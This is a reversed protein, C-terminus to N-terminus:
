ARQTDDIPNVIKKFSFEAFDRTNRTHFTTVGNSLLTIALIRDFIHSSGHASGAMPVIIKEWFRSDYGCHLVGSEERLFRIQQLATSHDLPRELIRPNRLARYFEFLVQDAVMWEAPSVLMSQYIRLAKEHEDCGQNVAYVLINTDLSNM